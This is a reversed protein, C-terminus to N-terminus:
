WATNRPPEWFWHEQPTVAERRAAVVGEFGLPVAEAASTERFPLSRTLLRRPQSMILRTGSSAGSGSPRATSPSSTADRCHRAGLSGAARRGCAGRGCACRTMSTIKSTSATSHRSTFRRWSGRGPLRRPSSVSPVSGAPGDRKSLPSSGRNSAIGAPVQRPAPAACASSKWGM